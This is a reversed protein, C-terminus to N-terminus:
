IMNWGTVVLAAATAVGVGQLLMQTFKIHKTPGLIKTMIDAPHEDTPVFVLSVLGLQVCERVHNVDRNFYRSKPHTVWINSVLDVGAQSDTYLLTPDIQPEGLQGLLLRDATISKCVESMAKIESQASSHSVTTSRKCHTIVAGACHGLFGVYGYQYKSDGEPTYGSDSFVFLQVPEKGGLVLEHLDQHEKVYTLAKVMGRRHVRQPTEGASALVSTAVKLEPWSSDAM